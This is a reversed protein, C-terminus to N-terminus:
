EVSRYIVLIRSNFEDKNIYIVLNQSYFEDKNICMITVQAIEITWAAGTACRHVRTCM